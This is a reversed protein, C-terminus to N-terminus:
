GTVDNNTKSRVTRLTRFMSIPRGTSARIPLHPQFRHADLSDAPRRSEADHMRAHRAVPEALEDIGLPLERARILDAGNWLHFTHQYQLTFSAAPAHPMAFGTADICTNTLKSTTGHVLNHLRQEGIAPAAGLRTHLLALGVQIQDDPTVLATLESELGYVRTTSQVNSFDLTHNGDPLTVPAAIQYGWFQMYYFANNLTANGGFFTNKTGVEYNLDTEPNFM